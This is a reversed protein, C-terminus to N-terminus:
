VLINVRQQVFLGQANQWGRGGADHSMCRWPTRTLNYYINKYIRADEYIILFVWCHPSGESSVVFVMSKTYCCPSCSISGFLCLFCCCSFDAIVFLFFGFLTRTYSIENELHCSYRFEDMPLVYWLFLIKFTPHLIDFM